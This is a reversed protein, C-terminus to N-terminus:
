ELPMATRHIAPRRQRNNFFCDIERANASLDNLYASLTICHARMLRATRYLLRKGRYRRLSNAMPRHTQAGM